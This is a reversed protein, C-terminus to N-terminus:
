DLYFNYEFEICRIYSRESLFSLAAKSKARKESIQYM